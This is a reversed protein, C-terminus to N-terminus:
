SKNYHGELNLNCNKHNNELDCAKIAFQFNHEVILIAVTWELPLKHDSHIELNGKLDYSCDDQNGPFIATANITVIKIECPCNSIYIVIM